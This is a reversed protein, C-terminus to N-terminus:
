QGQAKQSATGASSTISSAFRRSAIGLKKWAVKAANQTIPVIRESESAGGDSLTLLLALAGSSLPITRAHGASRVMSIKTKKSCLNQNQTDGQTSTDLRQDGIRMAIMRRVGHRSKGWLLCTFHLEAHGSQALLPCRAAEPLLSGTRSLTIEMVLKRVNSCCQDPTTM